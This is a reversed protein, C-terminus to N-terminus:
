RPGPSGDGEDLSVSHRRRRMRRQCSQWATGTRTMRRERRRRRDDLHRERLEYISDDGRRWAKAVPDEADAPIVRHERAIERAVVVDPTEAVVYEQGDHEDIVLYRM